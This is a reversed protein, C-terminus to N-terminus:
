LYDQRVVVSWATFVMFGCFVAGHIAALRTLSPMSPRPVTARSSPTGSLRGLALRQCEFPCRKTYASVGSSPCVINKGRTALGFLLGSFLGTAVPECGHAITWSSGAIGWVVFAREAGPHDHDNPRTEQRGDPPEPADARSM